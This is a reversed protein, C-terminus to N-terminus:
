VFDLDPEIFGDLVSVDAGSFDYMGKNTMSQRLMVGSVIIKQPKAQQIDSDLSTSKLIKSDLSVANHNVVSIYSKTPENWVYLNLRYGEYICQKIKKIEVVGEELNNQLIENLNYEGRPLGYGNYFPNM